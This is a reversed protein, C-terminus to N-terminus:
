ASRPLLSSVTDAAHRAHSRIDELGARFQDNLALQRLQTESASLIHDIESRIEQLADPILGAARSSRRGAVADLERQVVAPLQALNDKRLYDHAGARMAAVAAEEGIRGTVVIFPLDRGSERLLALADIANLGPLSFDSIVVDWSHTSLLSRFLEATEVREFSVSFGGRSLERVLLLADNEYDEVILVNLKQKM